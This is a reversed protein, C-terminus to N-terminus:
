LNKTLRQVVKYESLFEKAIVKVATYVPVAVVMGVIGLLLGGIIIILFIELPHSKVSSSFILPQNVFNDILQVIVVGIMVYITTPLIVTQFDAGINSSMSLLLMLAGGILPGVYPILNLLACLFAIVVANEIGFILLLITYLIFIVTVQALLGVFYRTLLNRIKTISKKLRNEDSNKVLSLIANDFLASDKLFFFTIFLVSFLGISFSGLAGFIHNLFDPVAKYDIKSLWDMEELSSLIDIGKASFYDNAQNFLSEFNSQLGNMNLLSLNKSQKAILPIFLSMIGLFVGFMLTITTIVALTNGFRLRRRLFVVIPRGILTIVAALCIYVLVSRIQYLFWILVAIAVLIGIARLIGNSITKSTM